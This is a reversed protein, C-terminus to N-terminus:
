SEGTITSTLKGQGATADRLQVTLTAIDQEAIECQVLVNQEYSAQIDTANFKELLLYLTNQHNYDVTISVPVTVVQEVTTIAALAEKVCSAYAKVLGGTGLM